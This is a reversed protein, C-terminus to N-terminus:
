KESVCEIPLAAYFFKKRTKLKTFPKNGQYERYFRMAGSHAGYIELGDRFQKLRSRVGGQANSMGVYLVDAENIKKGSLDKGIFSLLYVGPFKLNGDLFRDGHFQKWRLRFLRRRLREIESIRM